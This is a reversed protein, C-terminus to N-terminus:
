GTSGKRDDQRALRTRRELRRVILAGLERLESIHIREHTRVDEIVADQETPRVHLIYTEDPQTVRRPDM